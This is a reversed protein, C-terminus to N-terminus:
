SGSCRTAGSVSPSAGDSPHVGPNQSYALELLEELTPAAYAEFAIPTRPYFQLTWIENTEICRKLSEEDRFDWPCQSMSNLWEEVTEYYDKHENHTLFLGCKHAPFVREVDCFLPDSPVDPKDGGVFTIEVDM